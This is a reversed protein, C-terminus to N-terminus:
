IATWNFAFSVLWNWTQASDICSVLSYFASIVVNKIKIIKTKFTKKKHKTFTTEEMTNPSNLRLHACAPNTDAIADGVKWCRSLIPTRQCHITLGDDDMKLLWFGNSINLVACFPTPSGAALSLRLFLFLIYQSHFAHTKLDVLNWRSWRSKQFMRLQCYIIWRAAFMLQSVFPGRANIGM